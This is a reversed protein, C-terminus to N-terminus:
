QIWQSGVIIIIILHTLLCLLVRTPTLILALFVTPLRMVISSLMPNVGIDDMWGDMWRKITEDNLMLWGYALRLPHVDTMANYIRDIGDVVKSADCPTLGIAPPQTDTLTTDISADTGWPSASPWRRSWYCRRLFIHNFCKDALHFSAFFFPPFLFWILSPFLM